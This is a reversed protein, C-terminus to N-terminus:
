THKLRRPGQDLQVVPFSVNDPQLSRALFQASLLHLHDKVPLEKVEEHLHEISANTHCNIKCGVLLLCRKTTFMMLIMGYM